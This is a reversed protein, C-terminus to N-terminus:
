LICNKDVNINIYGYQIMYVVSAVDDNNQERDAGFGPEYQQPSKRIREYRRVHVNIVM